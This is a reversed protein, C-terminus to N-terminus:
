STFIEYRGSKETILGNPLQSKVWTLNTFSEYSKCTVEYSENVYRHTESWPPYLELGSILFPANIKINFFM